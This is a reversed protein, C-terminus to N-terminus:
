RDIVFRTVLQEMDVAAKTLSNATSMLCESAAVQEETSCAITKAARATDGAVNLADNLDKGLVGSQERIESAM